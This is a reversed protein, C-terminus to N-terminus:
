GTMGEAMANREFIRRAATHWLLTLFSVLSNNGLSSVFFCPEGAGGSRRTSNRVHKTVAGSAARVSLTPGPCAKRAGLAAAAIAAGPSRM